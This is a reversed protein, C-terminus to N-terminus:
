RNMIQNYIKKSKLNIGLERKFYDIFFNELLIEDILSDNNMLSEISKIILDGCEYENLLYEKNPNIGLIKLLLLEFKFLTIKPNNSTKLEDLTILILNYLKSEDNSHNILELIYEIMINSILYKSLDNKIESYDDIVNAEILTPLKPNKSPVFDILTLPESVALKESNKRKAGRVLLSISSDKSLCTIIYSTEEYDIRRLVLGKIM